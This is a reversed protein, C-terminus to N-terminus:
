SNLVKTECLILNHKLLPTFYYLKLTASLNTIEDRDSRGPDMEFFNVIVFPAVMVM